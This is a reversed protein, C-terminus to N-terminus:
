NAKTGNPIIADPSLLSFHGDDDSVAFIMGNSEFGRITRPALNTVFMSKKGVLETPDEFYMRIGSIIQRHEEEGLDVELRLLKDADEVIEVAKIEGVRIEVKSFTEYDIKEM